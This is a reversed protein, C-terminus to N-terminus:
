SHGISREVPQMAVVAAAAAAAEAAAALRAAQAGAARQTAGRAGGKCADRHAGWDHSQHEQSCYCVAKYAACLKFSAPLLERADCGRRACCRLLLPTGGGDCGAGRGRVHQMGATLLVARTGGASSADDDVLGRAHLVGSRRLRAWAALLTRPM